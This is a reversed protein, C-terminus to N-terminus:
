CLEWDDAAPVPQIYRNSPPDISAFNTLFSMGRLSIDLNFDFGDYQGEPEYYHAFTATIKAKMTPVASKLLFGAYTFLARNIYSERNYRSVVQSFGAILLESFDVELVFSKENLSTTSTGSVDLDILVPENVLNLLGLSDLNLETTVNFKRLGKYQMAGTVTTNDNLLQSHYGGPQFVSDIAKSTEGEQVATTEAGDLSVLNSAGTFSLTEYWGDNM